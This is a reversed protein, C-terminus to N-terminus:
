GPFPENAVMKAKLMAVQTKMGALLATAEQIAIRKAQVAKNAKDIEALWKSRNAKQEEKSM